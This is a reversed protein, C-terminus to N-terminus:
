GVATVRVVPDSGLSPGGPQNFPVYVVGRHLTEDLLVPLEAEATKTVLKVLHGERAGLRRADDPHLHAAAGPALRHLSLSHRMMVGDDYMKRASHLVMEASMGPLATAVPVYQLKQVADGYPVVAGSRAEWDLLDWTIGAYAPAATAIEKAIGAASGFGLDTGLRRAIDDIISWDARAQGAGPVIENVKQVRGELNTITGEKEAFGLAPLIVDAYATSATHFLDLAVVFGAKELAEAAVASDPVDAVPDAGMLMVAEIDGAALGELIARTPRGVGTPVEGWAELGESVSIRGPLLDPALGMDLAGFINGRRALPLIKAGKDRLWAAAGEALRPDETLGTRGVLAVVPGAALAQDIDPHEGNQLASLLDGGAGPRYRLTFDAEADLGTRRPHIVILRAGPRRIILGDSNSVVANTDFGTAAARVRLYLTPHEEKLDPGWVVITAASDIDDIVGRDAVGALFQSAVTDDMRADVHNTGVVTRLFKSFAYADENTGRAGGLGAVAAGGQESIIGSLRSAVTDLAESWTAERLEGGDRVLPVSLRDPSNIYEYGFRCKDSLWSQNTHPNDVALLRVVQNQSTQVTIADGTSCHSCTSAVERLDWPRARFRYPAALLAGVPCIQVTNGSFYSRFPEDPFTNVETNYGRGMFEILPDGSIEESFRTCRACLICRERDILVLESIEIPKEYHRKEEVFRTEGPGYAMTQDQLPCEGGKDCVPCDLPHNILLYELIGEQAKAVTDNETDVVMGDSVVTTCAPVIMPGRPGELQILCMRCMGVPRMRPHWCFRPIYVGNDQAVRILIDGKSASMERGDVTITVEEAM